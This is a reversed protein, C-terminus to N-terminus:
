RRAKAGAEGPEVEAEVPEEAAPEDRAEVRTKGEPLARAADARRIADVLLNANESGVVVTKEKGSEDEYTVRIARGKDGLMNYIMAGDKFSRKIGWGGFEKWDYDVSQAKKIKAIPIKPGFLGYQIHMAETSVTVRLVTFLLWAMLLVFAIPVTVALGILGDPAGAALPAIGGAFSGLLPVVFFLHFYWPAVSKERHLVTGGAAMYNKEYDDPARVGVETGTDEPKTM